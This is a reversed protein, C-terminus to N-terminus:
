TKGTILDYMMLNCITGESYDRKFGIEDEPEYKSSPCMVLTNNFSHIDLSSREDHYHSSIKRITNNKESFFKLYSRQSCCPQVQMFYM